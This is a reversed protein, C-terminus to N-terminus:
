PNLLDGLVTSIPDENVPGIIYEGGLPCVPFEGNMFYEALDAETPVSDGTMNNEIAWQDKAAQIMRLHNISVNEQAAERAKVFSPIAIGALLGTGAVAGLNLSPNQPRNHLILSHVLGESRHYVMAPILYESPSMMKAVSQQMEEMVKRQEPSLDEASEGNMMIEMQEKQYRDLFAGLKPNVLLMASSSTMPLSDLLANMPPDESRSAALISEDTSLVVAADVYALSLQQAPSVPIPLPLQTISQEEVQKTSVPLQLILPWASLATYLRKTPDPIRLRLAMAPIKVPDEADVLFRKEEDISVSFSWGEHFSNLLDDLPFGMSRMSQDMVPMGQGFEGVLKSAALLDKWLAPANFSLHLLLSSNEPQQAILDRIPQSKGAYNWLWGSADADLELLYQTRYYGNDLQKTSNGMSKMEDLGLLSPLDKVHSLIKPDFAPNAAEAFAAEAGVSMLKLYEFVPMLTEQLYAGSKLSFVEGGLDLLAFVRQQEQPLPYEAAQTWSSLSLFLAVCLYANKLRTM